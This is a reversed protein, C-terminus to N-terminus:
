WQEFPKAHARFSVGQKAFYKDKIMKYDIEGIGFFKIENVSAGPIEIRVWMQKPKM